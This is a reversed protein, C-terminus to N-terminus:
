TKKKWVVDDGKAKRSLEEAFKPNKKSLESLKMLDDQPVTVLCHRGLSIVAFNGV